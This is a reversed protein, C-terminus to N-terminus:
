QAEVVAITHVHRQAGILLFAHPQARKEFPQVNRIESDPLRYGARRGTCMDVNAGCARPQLHRRQLASRMAPGETGNPRRLAVLLHPTGLDSQETTKTVRPM